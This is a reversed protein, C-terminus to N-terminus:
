KMKVVVPHMTLRLDKSFVYEFLAHWFSDEPGERMLMQLPVHEGFVDQAILKLIAYTQMLWVFQDWRHKSPWREFFLARVRPNDPSSVLRRAYEPEIGKKLLFRYGLEVDDFREPVDYVVTERRAFFQDFEHILEQDGLYTRWSDEHLTGVVIPVEDLMKLILRTREVHRERSLRRTKRSGAYLYDMSDFFVIGSERQTRIAQLFVEDDTEQYHGDLFAQSLGVSDAWRWSGTLVAGKGCGARGRILVSRGAAMQCIVKVSDRPRWMGMEMLYSTTAGSSFHDIKSHPLEGSGILFGFQPLTTGRFELTRGGNGNQKEM